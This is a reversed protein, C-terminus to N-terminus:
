RPVGRLPQCSVSDTSMSVPRGSSVVVVRLRGTRVQDFYALGFIQNKKTSSAGLRVTRLLKRGFFVKVTGCGRCKTAVLALRAAQVNDLQLSAGQSRANSFTDLFHGNGKKKMWPGRHRLAMNNVPIATCGEGGYESVNLAPDAARASFCYTRGAVGEFVGGTTPTRAMWTFFNGFGANHPANRQRVDYNAAENAQWNLEIDTQTQFRRLLGPGHVFPAPPPTLDTSLLYSRPESHSPNAATQAENTIVAVVSACGSPDFATLQTSAGPGVVDPIAVVRLLTGTDCVVSARLRGGASANFLRVPYPKPGTPLRIWNLAYNDEVTGLYTDGVSAIVGDIGTPGASAVYDPGERL